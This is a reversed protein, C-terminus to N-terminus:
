NQWESPAYLYNHIARGRQDIVSIQFDAYLSSQIKLSLVSEFPNPYGEIKLANLGSNEETGTMSCGNLTGPMNADLWLLRRDVWDKLRQVEEGYTQSPAPVEPTGTPAGMNGWTQYHWVQSEDVTLAVSDIM